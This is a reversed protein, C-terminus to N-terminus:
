GPKRNLGNEDYTYFTASQRYDPDGNNSNNYHFIGFFIKKYGTAGLYGTAKVIKKLTAYNAGDQSAELFINAGDDRVALWIGCAIMEAQAVGDSFAERTTKSSWRAWTWSETGVRTITEYKNGDTFGITPGGYPASMANWLCYVAVRYPTNSPTARTLGVLQGNTAATTNANLITICKGANEIASFPTAIGVDEFTALNPMAPLEFLQRQGSGGGGGGTPDEWAPPNTRGQCTLVQGATGPLLAQWGSATRGLITGPVNSVSDLLNQITQSLRRAGIWILGSDTKITWLTGMHAMMLIDRWLLTTGRQLEMASEM